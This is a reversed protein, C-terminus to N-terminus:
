PLAYAWVEVVSPAPAPDEGPSLVVTQVPLDRLNVITFRGFSRMPGCAEVAVDAGSSLSCAPEGVEGAVQRVLVLSRYRRGPLLRVELMGDGRGAQGSCPTAFNRDTLPEAPVPRGSMVVSHVFSEEPPAFCISLFRARRQPLRFEVMSPSYNKPDFREPPETVVTDLIVFRGRRFGEEDVAAAPSYAPGLYGELFRPAFDVFFPQRDPFTEALLEAAEKWREAPLYDFQLARKWGHVSLVGSALVLCIAAPRRLVPREVLKYAITGAALSFPIVVFSTSRLIPTGLWVCTTFFVLCAGLLVQAGATTRREEHTLFAPLSAVGFLLAFAGAPGGFFARPRLLYTRLTELVADASAYSRGWRVAYEANQATLERLIPAYAALVGLLSALGALFLDRRRTVVFALLLVPAAFFGFTPLTWTGLVAVVVLLVVARGRAGGVVDCALTSLLAAFFAALGYGRAQFLLDVLEGNGLLGAALFAALLPRTRWLRGVLFVLLGGVALFSVLRARLPAVSRGDPVLSVLLNFFVHNNPDHYDTVVFAPGKSSFDLVSVLEDTWLSVTAMTRGYVFLYALVSSLLLAAAIRASRGELAPGRESSASQRLGVFALM